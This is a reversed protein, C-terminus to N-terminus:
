APGSTDGQSGTRTRTVWKDVSERLARPQLPPLGETMRDRFIGQDDALIPSGVTPSLYDLGYDRLVTFAQTPTPTLPHPFSRKRPTLFCESYRQPTEYRSRAKAMGTFYPLPPPLAPHRHNFPIRKPTIQAVWCDESCMQAAWSLKLVDHVETTVGLFLWPSISRQELRSRSNGAM